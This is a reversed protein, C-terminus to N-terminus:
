KTVGDAISQNIQRNLKNVEYLEKATNVHREEMETYWNYDELLDQFTKYSGTISQEFQEAISNITNEYQSKLTQLVSETYDLLDQQSENM